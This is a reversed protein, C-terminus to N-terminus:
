CSCGSKTQGPRTSCLPPSTGTSGWPSKHGTYIRNINFVLPDKLMKVMHGLPYVKHELLMSNHGKLVKHFTQPVLPGQLM